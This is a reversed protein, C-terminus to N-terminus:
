VSAIYGEIMGLIQLHRSTNSVDKRFGKTHVTSLHSRHIPWEKWAISRPLFASSRVGFAPARCHSVGAAALRSVFPTLHGPSPRVCGPTNTNHRRPAPAHPKSRTLADDNSNNSGRRRKDPQSNGLSIFHTSSRQRTQAPHRQPHRQQQNCPFLQGWRDHKPKLRQMPGNNFSGGFFDGHVRLPLPTTHQPASHRCHLRHQVGVFM